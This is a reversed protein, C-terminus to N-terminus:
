SHKATKKKKASVARCGAEENSIGDTVLAIAVRRRTQVLALYTAAAVRNSIRGQRLLEHVEDEPTMGLEVLQPHDPAIGEPSPTVLIMTRTGHRRALEKLNPTGIPSALAARVAEPIDRVPPVYKPGEVWALNAEPIRLTKTDQGYPVRVEKMLVPCEKKDANLRGLDM